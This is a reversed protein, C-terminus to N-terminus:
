TAEPLSRPWAACLMVKGDIPSAHIFFGHESTHLDYFNARNPDPHAVAGSSLSERLHDVIGAPYDKMNDISLQGEMQLLM